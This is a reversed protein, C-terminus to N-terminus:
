SFNTWAYIYWLNRYNYYFLADKYFVLVLEYLVTWFVSFFTMKFINKNNARQTANLIGKEENFMIKQQLSAETGNYITTGKWRWERHDISIKLIHQEM